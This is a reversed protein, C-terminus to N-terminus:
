GIWIRSASLLRETAWAASTVASVFRSLVSTREGIRATLAFLVAHVPVPFTFTAEISSAEANRFVRRTEVVALGAEIRVDFKTSILPVPADTGQVHGGCMFAHLPDTMTQHAFKHM